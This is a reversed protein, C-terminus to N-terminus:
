RGGPAGIRIEGYGSEDKGPFDRVTEFSPRSKRRRNENEDVAEFRRRRHRGVKQRRREIKAANRRRGDLNQRQADDLEVRDRRLLDQTRGAPGPEVGPADRGGEQAVRDVRAPQRLVGERRAVAVRLRVQHCQFSCSLHLLNLKVDADVEMNAVRGMDPRTNPM